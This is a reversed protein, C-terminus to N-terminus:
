YTNPSNSPIDVLSMSARAASPTIQVVSLFNDVHPAGDRLLVPDPKLSQDEHAACRQECLPLRIWVLRYTEDQRKRGAASAVDHHPRKRLLHGLLPALRHHQITSGSCAACDSQLDRRVRRGVPIRECHASCARVGDIRRQM